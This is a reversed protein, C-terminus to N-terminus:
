TMKLKVYYELIAITLSKTKKIYLKLYFNFGSKHYANFSDDNWISLVGEKIIFSRTGLM